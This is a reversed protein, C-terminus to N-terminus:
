KMKTPKSELRNAREEIEQDNMGQVKNLLVSIQHVPHLNYPIHQFQQIKTIVQYILIRKEFNILGSVNDPYQNEILELDQLHVELFLICHSTLSNIETRYNSFSDKPSIKEVLKNLSIVLNDPIKKWTKELHMIVPNKIAQLIANLSQFNKLEYLYEAIHIFQALIKARIKTNEITILSAKAWSTIEKSKKNILVINPARHKLKPNNWSQNLLESPQIESFLQFDLLTLQRAIEQSDIDFIKLNPDFINKPVKPEPPTELLTTQYTAKQKTDQTIMKRLHLSLTNLEKSIKTDIFELIDLKLQANFDSPYKDIWNKLTNGIKIRIAKKDREYKEDSLDSSYPVNWREELKRLLKKPSTFSRYTILFKDLYHSDRYENDTLHKVLQNLSAAKITKFGTSINKEDYIINNNPPEDWIYIDDVTEDDEELGLKILQEALQEARDGRSFEDDKRLTLDWISDVKKVTERLLSQMRSENVKQSEYKIKSEEELIDKSEKLGLYDLHQMILQITSKRVSQEQAESLKPCFIDIFTETRRLPNVREYLDRIEPNQKMVKTMWNSRDIKPDEYFISNLDIEKNQLNNDEQNNNNNHNNNEQNDEQNNEQNNEQNSM